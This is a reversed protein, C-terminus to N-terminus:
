VEKEKKMVKEKSSTRWSKQCSKKEEANVCNNYKLMKFIKREKKNDNLSDLNKEKDGTRRRLAIKSQCSYLM